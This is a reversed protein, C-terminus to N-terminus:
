AALLLPPGTANGAIWLGPDHAPLIHYHYNLSAQQEAFLSIVFQIIKAIEDWHEIVWQFLALIGDPFARAKVGSLAQDVGDALQGDIESVLQDLKEPDALIARCNQRDARSTRLSLSKIRLARSVATRLMRTRDAGSFSAPAPASASATNSDTASDTDDDGLAISTAFLLMVMGAALCALPKWKRYLADVLEVFVFEPMLM